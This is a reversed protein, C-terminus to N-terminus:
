PLVVIKDRITKAIMGLVPDAAEGFMRRVKEEFLEPDSLIIDKDLKYILKLTRFVLVSTEKGMAKILGQEVMDIIAPTGGVIEQHAALLRVLRSLPLKDLLEKTYCCFIQVSGDYWKAAQEEYEVLKHQNEEKDFFEHHPMGMLVVGKFRGNKSVSSTIKQWQPLLEKYDLNTEVPSYFSDSSVITLAGKEIYDEGETIGAKLLNRVVQNVDKEVIYVVAYGQALYDVIKAYLHGNVLESSSSSLRQAAICM